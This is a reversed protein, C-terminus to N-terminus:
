DRCVGARRWGARRWLVSLRLRLLLVVVSRGVFSSLRRSAHVCAGSGKSEVTGAQEMQRMTQAHSDVIKNALFKSYASAKKLLDDLRAVKDSASTRNFARYSPDAEPTWEEEEKKEQELLKQEEAVM